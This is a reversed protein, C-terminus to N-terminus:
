DLSNLISFGEQTEEGTARIQVGSNWNVGPFRARGSPRERQMICEAVKTVM